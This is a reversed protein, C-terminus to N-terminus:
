SEPCYLLSFVFVLSSTGTWFVTVWLWLGSIHKPRGSLQLAPRAVVQAPLPADQSTTWARPTLWQAQSSWSGSVSVNALNVTARGAKTVGIVYLGLIGPKEMHVSTNEPCMKRYFISDRRWRGSMHGYNLGKWVLKLPSRQVLNGHTEAKWYRRGEAKSGKTHQLSQRPIGFQVM